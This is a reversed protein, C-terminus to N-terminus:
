EACRRGIDGVALYAYERNMNLINGGWKGKQTHVKLADVLQTNVLGPQIVQEARPCISPMYLAFM